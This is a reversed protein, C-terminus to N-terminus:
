IRRLFLYGRTARLVEWAAAAEAVHRLGAINGAEDAILLVGGPRLHGILARLVEHRQDMPLMHLTRDFLLADFQGEPAYRTIDAVHGTVSLGEAEAAAVLDAVGKPSIDVAVVSHGMRALPLTDRGQGCGLDLVRAPVELLDTFADMLARTPAGLADAEARYLADYDYGM